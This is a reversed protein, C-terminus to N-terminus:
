PDELAGPDSYYDEADYQPDITHAGPPATTPIFGCGGANVAVLLPWFAKMFDKWFLGSCTLLAKCMALRPVEM